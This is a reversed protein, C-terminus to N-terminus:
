GRPQKWMAKSSGMLIEPNIILVDYQHNKIKQIKWLSASNSKSNIAVAWIGVVALKDVNQKGLLNLLTIVIMLKKLGEVQAM